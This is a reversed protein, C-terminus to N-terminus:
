DESIVIIKDNKDFSIMDSKIPNVFVGNNKGKDHALSEIKYGIPIEGSKKAAEIVTYFNLNTNLKIYNDAPKLYIESGEPDFLDTFVANLYKNESIQSLLLSIIKDSVIFDNAKAIEALNRNKIDLMESVISFNKGTKYSIDRLHLLTILTRADAQQPEIDDYCVVIIHNFNESTLSDLVRRDTTDDNIFKISINKLQDKCEKNIQSEGNEHNAVLTVLSGKGVYNDLERIIRTTKWNWGLILTSEVAQSSKKIGQIAQTNINFNSINSLKIKNEDEAIIILSDNTKLIYDMPPNLKATKQDEFVGIITSDNYCSLIESFNKGTLNKEQTFYIEVGGFDLLETYVLSLGPQRCTQAIIRSILDGVLVVELENKGVIKCIEVNKPDRIEAIINYPEKRREPYNTIALITKIVSSDPDSEDDPSLIIISQSTNINVINLDNLEIPSGQRCVIKTKGSKGVKSKIEDEMEIKDKNGMIAICSKGKSQNATILESIITFVQESWGLIITHKNEIVKSRGKRLEELKSELGTTLIGILASIVFIGGLTVGFMSFLFLWPGEDGGMTGADLTRMLSMWVIQFFDTKNPDLKFLWTILSISFIIIAAIITLWIILAITGKSMISDFRYKFKESFKNKM